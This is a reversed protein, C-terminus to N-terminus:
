AEVKRRRPRHAARPDRDGRQSAPAGPSALEIAEEINHRAQM